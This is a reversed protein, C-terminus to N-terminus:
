FLFSLHFVGSEGKREKYIWDNHFMEEIGPVGQFAMTFSVCTLRQPHQYLCTLCNWMLPIFVEYLHDLHAQHSPSAAASLQLLFLEGLLYCFILTKPCFLFMVTIMRTTVLSNSSFPCSSECGGVLLWPPTAALGAPGTLQTLMWSVSLAAPLWQLNEAMPICTHKCHFWLNSISQFYQTWIVQSEEPREWLNVAGYGGGGGGDATNGAWVGSLSTTGRHQHSMATNMGWPEWVQSCRVGHVRIQCCGVADNQTFLALSFHTQTDTESYIHPMDQNIVSREFTSKLNWMCTNIHSKKKEKQSVTSQIASGLDMCM